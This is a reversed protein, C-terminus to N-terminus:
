TKITIPSLPFLLTFQTGMNVKSSINITGSMAKIVSFVVMMGLGTGKEKTSYFPSGLRNLQEENMGIGTDQIIIQVSGSENTVTIHLNGGTPMAEICNKFINLLCQQLKQKEGLVFFSDNSKAYEIVVNNFNALPTILTLANELEKEIDLTQAKDISPKAFTLYDTLVHNAQDIGNIAIDLYFEREQKTCSESKLLQLFGRTSTLPNRIEHSISAAMEGILHFKEANVLEEQLQVQSKLVEMLYLILVTGLTGCIQYIVVYMVHVKSYNVASLLFPAWGMSFILSACFFIIMKQELKKKSFSPYIMLLLLYLFTTALFSPITGSGGIFYRYINMVAWVIGGAVPGGTLTGITLMIHRFDFQYGSGEYPVAAFTMCMITAAICLAVFIIANLRPYEKGKQIWFLHYLLISILIFM